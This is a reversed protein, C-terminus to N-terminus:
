SVPVLEQLLNVAHVKQPSGPMIQILKSTEEALLEEAKSTKLVERWNGTSEQVADGVGGGGSAVNKTERRSNQILKGDAKASAASSPEQSAPALSSPVKSKDLSAASPLEGALRNRRQEETKNNM